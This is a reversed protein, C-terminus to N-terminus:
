KGEAKRRDNYRPQDGHKLREGRIANAYEQDLLESMNRQAYGMMGIDHLAPADTEGSCGLLEQFVGFNQVASIESSSPSSILARKAPRPMRTVPAPEPM